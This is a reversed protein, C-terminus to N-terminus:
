IGELRSGSAPCLALIFSAGGGAMGMEGRCACLVHRPQRPGAGAVRGVLRLFCSLAPFSSSPIRVRPHLWATPRPGHVAQSSFMRPLQRPWLHFCFIRDPLFDSLISLFKNPKPLYFLCCPLSSPDPPCLLRGWLQARFLVGDEARSLEKRCPPTNHTLLPALDLHVHGPSGAKGGWIWTFM